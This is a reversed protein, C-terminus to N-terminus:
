IICIGNRVANPTSPQRVGMLAMLIMEWWGGCGMGGGGRHTSVGGGRSVVSRRRWHGRVVVV